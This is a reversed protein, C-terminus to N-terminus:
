RIERRGCCKCDGASLDLRAFAEDNDRRIPDREIADFYRNIEQTLKLKELNALNLFGHFVLAVNDEM